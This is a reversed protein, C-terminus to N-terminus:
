RGIFNPPRKAAFARVGEARDATTQLLLTLDLEYRLAQELTLEVGRHVAEKAMRTAIPGRTAITRAIETAADRLRAAPVVQSVLGIRRAEAADIEEGLLLLRLAHARGVARPLRQSGGGRPLMGAATEPMAFRADEAAVRIDCALALELGASLARGGIAAVVPQPVAALADFAAGLPAVGPVGDPEALAEASWGACFDAGASAVVVARVTDTAAALSAAADAIAQTFARDALGGAPELLLTAVSGDVTLATPAM